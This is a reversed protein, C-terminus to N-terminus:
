FLSIQMEEAILNAYQSKSILEEYGPTRDIITKIGCRIADERTKFTQSFQYAGYGYGSTPTGFDLGFRFLKDDDDQAVSIKATIYKKNTPLCITECTEHPYVNCQNPKSM